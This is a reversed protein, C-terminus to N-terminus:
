VHINKTWLPGAAALFCWVSGNHEKFVNSAVLYTGLIYILNLIPNKLLLFILLVISIFYIRPNSIDWWTYRLHRCDPKTCNINKLKNFDKLILCLYILTIALTILKINKSYKNFYIASLFIVVPQLINSIMAGKTGFNNLKGCSKDSWIIFEFFQMTVVWFWIVSEAKFNTTKFLNFSLLTGILFTILSVEKNWCM